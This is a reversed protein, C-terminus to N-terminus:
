AEMTLKERAVGQGAVIKQLRNIERKLHRIEKRIQEETKGKLKEEYYEEPGLM